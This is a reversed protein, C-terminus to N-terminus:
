NYNTEKWHCLTWSTSLQTVYSDMIKSNKTWVSSNTLPSESCERNGFVTQQWKSLLNRKATTIYMMVNIAIFYSISEDNLIHWNLEIYNDTLTNYALSIFLPLPRGISQGSGLKFFNRKASSPKCNIFSYPM